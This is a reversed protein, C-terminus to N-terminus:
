KVIQVANKLTSRRIELLEQETIGMITATKKRKSPSTFNIRDWEYARLLSLDNATFEETEIQGTSWRIESENFGKKLRRRKQLSGM